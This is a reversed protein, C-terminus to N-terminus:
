LGAEVGSSWSMWSDAPLGSWPTPLAPKERPREGQSASPQRRIDKCPRRQAHRPILRKKEPLWSYPCAQLAPGQCNGEGNGNVYTFLLLGSSGCFPCPFSSHCPAPPCLTPTPPHVCM